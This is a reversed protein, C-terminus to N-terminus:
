QKDPKFNRLPGLLGAEPVLVPLPARARLADLSLDDLFVGDANLTNPPILAVDTGAPLREIGALLEKGPLLGSVTISDGFLENELGLIELELGALAGLAEGLERRILAEGLTGTVVGARLPRDPRKWGLGVAGRAEVGCPRGELRLRSLIM